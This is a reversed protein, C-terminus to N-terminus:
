STLQFCCVREKGAPSLACLLSQHSFENTECGKNPTEGILLRCTGGRTSCDDTEMVFKGTKGILVFSLMVFVLLALGTIIIRISVNQSIKM